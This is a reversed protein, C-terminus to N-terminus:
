VEPLLVPHSKLSVDSHKRLRSLTTDYIRREGTPFPDLEEMASSIEAPWCICEWCQDDM